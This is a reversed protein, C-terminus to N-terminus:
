GARVRRPVASAVQKKGVVDELEGRQEIQGAADRVRECEKEDRRYSDRRCRQRRTLVM